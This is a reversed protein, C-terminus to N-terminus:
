RGQNTSLQARPTHLGLLARLPKAAAGWLCVLRGTLLLALVSRLTDGLCAALVYWEAHTLLGAPDTDSGLLRCSM